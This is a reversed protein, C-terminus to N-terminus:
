EAPFLDFINQGGNSEPLTPPENGAAPPEAAPTGPPTGGTSGPQPAPGAVPPPAPTVEAVQGPTAQDLQKTLDGILEEWIMLDRISLNVLADAQRPDLEEEILEQQRDPPLPEAAAVDESVPTSTGNSARGDVIQMGPEYSQSGRVLIPFIRSQQEATLDLDNTLQELHRLASAEVRGVNAQLEEHRPHGPTVRVKLDTRLRAQGAAPHHDSGVLIRGPRDPKGSPSPRLDGTQSGQQWTGSSGAAQFSEKPHGSRDAGATEARGDEDRNTVVFALTGALVLLVVGTIFPLRHVM